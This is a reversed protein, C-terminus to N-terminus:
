EHLSRLWLFDCRWYISCIGLPFYSRMLYYDFPGEKPQSDEFKFALLTFSLLWPWSSIFLPHYNLTVQLMQSYVVCRAFSLHWGILHGAFQSSNESNLWNFKLAFNKCEILLKIILVSNVLIPGICCLDKNFLLYSLLM